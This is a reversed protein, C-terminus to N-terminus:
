VFFPAVDAEVDDAVAEEVVHDAADHPREDFDTAPFSRGVFHVADEGRKVAAGAAYGGGGVPQIKNADPILLVSKSM